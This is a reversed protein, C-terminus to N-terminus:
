PQPEWTAPDVYAEDASDPQRGYAEATAQEELEWLAKRIAMTIFEARRQSRGPGVRELRELVEDDVEIMVAAM